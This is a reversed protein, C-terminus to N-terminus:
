IVKTSTYLNVYIIEVKDLLKLKEITQRIEKQPREGLRQDGYQERSEQVGRQHRVGAM